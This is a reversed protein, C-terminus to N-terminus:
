FQQPEIAPVEYNPQNQPMDQQEGSPQPEIQEAQLTVPGSYQQPVTVNSPMPMQTTTVRRKLDIWNRAIAQQASALPVQRACVMANLVRELQDKNEANDPGTWPMLWLNRADMPAGGLSIPVLQDIQFNSAPQGPYDREALRRAAAATWSPAPKVSAAFNPNCITADINAQTITPNIAGPTTRPNPLTDAFPTIPAVGVRKQAIFSAAQCLSRDTLNDCAERMTQPPEEIMEGHSNIFIGALIVGAVALIPWRSM